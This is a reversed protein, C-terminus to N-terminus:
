FLLDHYFSYIFSSFHYILFLYIIFYFFICQVLLKICIFCVFPGNMSSLVCVSKNLLLRTTESESKVWLTNTCRLANRTLWQTQKSNQHQHLHAPLSTTIVTHRHQSQLAPTNHSSAPLADRCPAQRDRETSYHCHSPLLLLLHASAGWQGEM